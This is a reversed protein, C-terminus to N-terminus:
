GAAAAKCDAEPFSRFDVRVDLNAVAREITGEHDFLFGFANRLGEFLGPPPSKPLFTVEAFQGNSVVDGFGYQPLDVVRACLAQVAKPFEASGPLVYAQTAPDIVEYNSMAVLTKESSHANLMSSLDYFQFRRMLMRYPRDDEFVGIMTGDPIEAIAPSHIIANSEYVDALLQRSASVDMAIFGALVVMCSAPLLRAPLIARLGAFCFAGAIVALTTQHRTEWLGHYAPYIGVMIYPFMALVAAGLLGAVLLWNGIAGDKQVAVEARSIRFIGAIIAVCVLAILGAEILHGLTPFFRPLDSPQRVLALLSRILGEFPGMRFQNYDAYLGYVPQFVSKSVWYAIPLIFLEIHLLTGRVAPWFRKEEDKHRLALFVAAPVLLAMTLFSNTSFSLLLLVAGPLRLWPQARRVSLVFLLLSLSYFAASIAYPTMALGFRAQNLPMAATLAAAWFSNGRTWGIAQLAYYACLAVVGWCVFSVGAWVMPNGTAAFPATMFYHERRGVQKFLEWLGDVGYQVLVWDDWFPVNVFLYSGFCVVYLFAILGLHVATTKDYKM